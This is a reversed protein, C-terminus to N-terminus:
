PMVIRRIRALLPLVSRSVAKRRLDGICTVLLVSLVLTGYTGLFFLLDGIGDSVGVGIPVGIIGGWVLWGEYPVPRDAHGWRDIMRIALWAALLGIAIGALVDSPYHALGMVRLGGIVAGCGLFVARLPWGLAPVVAGGVAFAGATDGSPFSVDHRRDREPRGTEQARAVAYPRARGVVIKLPGVTAGVLILALIGSLVERRRHSVTFWVLLLWVQLWGKGLLTLTRAWLSAHPNMESRIAWSVAEQDFALWCALSGALLAPVACLLVLNRRPIVPLSERLM